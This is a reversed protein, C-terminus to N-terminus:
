AFVCLDAQAYRADLTHHSVAGIYRVCEGSTNVREMTQRLRKMAPAYAPVILDLVVPMGERRLQGVADAVQWQHKYMDVTSVYLIRFPRDNSYHHIALQERPPCVFRKGVGLPIITTRGATRKIVKMIVDRACRTLFICGDARRFTRTNIIRLMTLKVTMWSWGFRRLEHWDFPLLNQSMTLMPRFNGAFSGGPVFLVDCNSMRAQRSLQCRQWMSRHFLSKDLPPHHSKILWPRDEIRNLTALGSWVIVRSFCHAPPDAARLLEVLHNVTGGGRINSADIGLIM